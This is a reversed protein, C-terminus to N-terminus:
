SSSRRRAPRATARAVDAVAALAQDLQAHTVFYHASARVVSSLGRATMDLLTASRESTAVTVGARWLRDRVDAAPVGDVTFSVIGSRARGRDHVQVGPITRLGRRLHEARGLVATRVAGAGLELLYDVAAKLGLRAAMSAEALEFRAADARVEFSRPATWLGGRLDLAAPQLVQELGPRVYLFGTGRPGRLWKRGTGVLGDVGLQTVDVELQGVSQCADLLVLAEHAHAIRSVEAVPNILGGNSPAHVVSVLRVRGDMMEALRNLDIDGEVGSPVIDIRAGTARARSLATLANSAYESEGILIRDGRRLRVAGFFQTWSRTASDTLALSGADCGLLRGLSAPLGALEVSREAAARYGGVVAELRLHDEMAAVVRRPPLSSGASDLFVRDRSGPTEARVAEEDLM